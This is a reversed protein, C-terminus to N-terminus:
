KKKDKMYAFAPKGNAMIALNKIKRNEDYEIKGVIFKDYCAYIPKGNKDKRGSPILKKLKDAPVWIFPASYLERGIGFNVCARKFSDSAQGKEAEVNSESGVDEKSIWQSKEKDWISVSCGKGGDILERKWGFTRFLEDLIDMDVRANKYLLLSVGTDKAQAVRVDIEEATLTRNKIRDDM